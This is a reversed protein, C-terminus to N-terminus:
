LHPCCLGADRTRGDALRLVVRTNIQRMARDLGDPLHMLGPAFIVRYGFFDWASPPVIDVSAGLKRLAQYTDFVLQFYSSGAAHPLAQWAWDADYDFVVAVPARAASVDPADALERVVQVVEAGHAFTERSWLRVMGPLPPPNYPVWNVPGPQQKM